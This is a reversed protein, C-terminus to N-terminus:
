FLELVDSAARGERLNVNDLNHTFSSSILEGYNATLGTIIGKMTERDLGFILAPSVGGGGNGGGGTDESVSEADCEMLRSLTFEVRGGCAASYKYLSYLVVRPDPAAWPTRTLSLFKNGERVAEGMGVKSFPLDLFRGLSRWVDSAGREKAGDQILRAEAMERTVTQMMPMRTVFWHIQPTYVLNALMLAWSAESELTLMDVIKAFNSFGNKDLLEADLLFRKFFRHMVSGLSHKSDFEDKYLFYQRMWEAKPAHTSYRDLLSKDSMPLAGGIPIKLSAYVLCGDEVSHCDTCHICDDSITLKDDKMSIFGNHCNSECVRCLVCSAAKHFVSKLLRAFLQNERAQRESFAADYGDKCETVTFEYVNGGFAIKYPSEETLLTGVTKIWVKWDTRPHRVYIVRFGGESRETCGTKISIDMGNNRAKWGTNNMFDDFVEISQFRSKYLERIIKDFQEYENKYLTSRIYASSGTSQPCVLCGARRNGKKYAENLILGASYIHMYVEASGWHLIPNCEGQRKHKEGFSVYKYGARRESEYGRVGVFAMGTFYSKGTIERLLLVQPATKHVSCCWRKTTAPPGFM